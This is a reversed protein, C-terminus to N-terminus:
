HSRRLHLSKRNIMEVKTNGYLVMLVSIDEYYGAFVLIAKLSILLHVVVTKQGEIGQGILTLLIHKKYSIIKLGKCYQQLQM